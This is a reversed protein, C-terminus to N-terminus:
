GNLVVQSLISPNVFSVFYSFYPPMIDYGGKIVVVQVGLM